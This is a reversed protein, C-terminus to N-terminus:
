GCLNPLSSCIPLCLLPATCASPKIRSGAAVAVQDRSGISGEGECGRAHASLRRLFSATMSPLGLARGGLRKALTARLVGDSSFAYADRLQEICRAWAM